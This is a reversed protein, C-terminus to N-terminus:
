KIAKQMADFTNPNVVMKDGFGYVMGDEMMYGDPVSKFKRTPEWPWSFLREKWTRKELKFKETRDVFVKRSDALRGLYGQEIM